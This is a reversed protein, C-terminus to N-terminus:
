LSMIMKIKRQYSLKKNTIISLIDKCNPAIIGLKIISKDLSFLPFPTKWQYGTLKKKNITGHNTYNSLTKFFYSTEGNWIVKNHFQSLTDIISQYVLRNPNTYDIVLHNLSNAIMEFTITTVIPKIRLTNKKDSFTIPYISGDTNHLMISPFTKIINKFNISSLLSYSSEPLFIDINELEKKSVIGKIMELFSEITKMKDSLLLFYPYYPKSTEPIKSIPSLLVGDNDLGIKIQSKKSNSYFSFSFELLDKKENINTTFYLQNPYKQDKEAKKLSVLPYMEKVFSFDDVNDVIITLPVIPIQITNVASFLYKYLEDETDANLLANRIYGRQYSISM